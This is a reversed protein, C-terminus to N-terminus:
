DYIQVFVFSVIVGIVIGFILITLLSKFPVREFTKNILFFVGSIAAFVIVILIVIRVM